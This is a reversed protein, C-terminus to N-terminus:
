DTKPEVVVRSGSVEAIVVRAGSPIWEGAAVVSQRLDGFRAIGAPRLDSEAVGVEGPALKTESARASALSTSLVVDKGMRSKPIWLFVATTSALVLVVALTGYASGFFQYALYCGGLLCVMGAVGVVGFGPLIFLEVALLVYGAVLLAVVTLAPDSM